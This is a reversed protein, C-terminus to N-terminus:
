DEWLGRESKAVCACEAYDRDKEMGCKCECVFEREREEESERERECVRVRVAQYTKFTNSDAGTSPQVKELWKTFIVSIHRL